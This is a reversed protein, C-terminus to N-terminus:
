PARRRRRATTLAALEARSGVGLKRYGAELQKRVTSVAVGRRAAIQPTTLGTLALAAVEAEAGTLGDVGPRPDAAAAGDGAPVSLVVVNPAALWAGRLRRPRDRM